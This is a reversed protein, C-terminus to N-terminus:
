IKVGSFDSVVIMVVDGSDVVVIDLDVAVVVV